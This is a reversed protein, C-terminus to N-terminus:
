GDVEEVQRVCIRDAQSRRLAITAGRILYATPDGSPSKFEAEIVTGPLIGLDLMRRREPGRCSRSIATVEAREGPKLDSLRRWDPPILEAQPQEIVFVNAAVIPALVHEAEESSLVVREASAETVRALMGPQLGAAVLQAYVTTPEDEIHVVRVTAGEEVETLPTGGHPVLDGDATPIPDGHPDHTPHGLLASLEDMEQPTLRHEAAEAREHWEREDFGTEQALYHEWLRHARIV